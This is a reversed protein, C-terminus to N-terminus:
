LCAEEMHASTNQELIGAIIQITEDIDEDTTDRSLSFSICTHAKVSPVGCAELLIALQQFSGGGICAYVKKRNLLFLLTENVIGPFAIVAIHPLREQDQFMLRASPCRQHIGKELKNRLRATETGLYDRHEESEKCAEALSVLSAVPLHGARLAAQEIGGVILPSVPAGQKVLLGGSGRPAHIQEGNFTLYDVDIEKFQFFMKGIVHTADLHFLVGRQKCLAAIEAIPHLVGTLGNGWSLSVLVTDSNIAAAVEEPRVIGQSNPELMEGVAGYEELRVVSMLAPAEDTSCVIFQSKKEKKHHPHFASHFVQNVAEAGSSTIILTDNEAAGLFRYIARYSNEIAANLISGGQHPASPTGWYDSFYPLMASVARPSPRATTSNDLYIGKM